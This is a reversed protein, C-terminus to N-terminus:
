MSAYLDDITNGTSVEGNFAAEWPYVKEAARAALRRESQRKKDMEMQAKMCVDRVAACVSDEGVWNGDKDERDSYEGEEVRRLIEEILEDKFSEDAARNANIEALQRTAAEKAAKLRRTRERAEAAKQAAELKELRGTLEKNEATLKAVEKDYFGTVKTVDIEMDGVTCTMEAAQMRESIVNGKDSDEFTYTYAEVGSKSLLAVTKGDESAAAVFYDPFKADLEKRLSKTMSKRLGKKSLKQRQEGEPAPTPELPKGVEQRLAAVRLKMEEFEQQMAALARINAGPVAPVVGDGLISLGIGDWVEMIEVEDEIKSQIVNTEVSVSMRGTRIIKDTLEKAYNRWIRGRVRIWRYGDREILTIDEDNESIMGVIREATPAMYSQYAEGNEDYKTKSNHGDGVRNGVYAVMVPRGAFTRYYQEINRYEWNKVREKTSDNGAVGGVHILGNRMIDAEFAFEYQNIQQLVRLEGCMQKEM